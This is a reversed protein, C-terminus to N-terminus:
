SNEVLDRRAVLGWGALVLLLVGPLALAWARAADGLGVARRDVLRPSLDFAEIPPLREMVALTGRALATQVASIEAPGHDHLDGPGHDHGAHAAADARAAADVELIYNSADSLIDQASLAVVMFLAFGVATPAGFRVAGCTAAAAALVLLPAAALAAVLLGVTFLQRAGAVQVSGEAFRLAWAGEGGWVSLVAEDGPRLGRDPVEAAFAVGLGFEARADPMGVEGPRHVGIQVHSSKSMEMSTDGYWVADPAFRLRMRGHESAGEPVTFRFTALRQDRRVWTLGQPDPAAGRVAAMRRVPERAGAGLGGAEVGLMGAAAMALALCAGFAGYGAVAGAVLELRRVPSSALADVSRRAVDGPFGLAAPIATALLALGAVTALVARDAMAAREADTGGTAWAAALRGAVFAVPLLWLLRAAVCERFRLDAVALIRRM